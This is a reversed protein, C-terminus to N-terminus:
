IGTDGGFANDGSEPMSGADQGSEGTDSSESTPDVEAGDGGGDDSGDTMIGPDFGAPGSSVHQSGLSADSRIVSEPGEDSPSM